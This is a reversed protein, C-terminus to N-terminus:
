YERERSVGAFALAWRAFMALMGLRFPRSRLRRPSTAIGSSRVHCIPPLGRRRLEARVRDLFELDEALRLDPRFGGASHFLERDCFLMQGRIGFWVKGLEMLAFFGRDVASPSDGYVKISGSLFGAARREAIDSILRPDMRSDADLFILVEGRATQAGVNKAHGVGPEPVQLITVPVPLRRRAFAGAVRATADWSDNDVVIVELFGAPYAQAAVSELAVEIYQEENRAPIIVSASIPGM